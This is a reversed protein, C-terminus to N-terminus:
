NFPFGRFIIFYPQDYCVESNEYPKENLMVTPYNDWSELYFTEKKM